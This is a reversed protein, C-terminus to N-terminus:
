ELESVATKLDLDLASSSVFVSNGSRLSEAKSIAWQYASMRLKLTRRPVAAVKIHSHGPTARDCSWNRVIDNEVVSLFRALELRKRMSNQRKIVQNTAELDTTLQLFSQCMVKMSHATKTWGLHKSTTWSLSVEMNVQLMCFPIKM